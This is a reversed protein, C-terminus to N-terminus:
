IQGAQGKGAAEQRRQYGELIARLAGFALLALLIGRLPSAAAQAAKKLGQGVGQWFEVWNGRILSWYSEGPHAEAPGGPQGPYAPIYPEIRIPPDLAVLDYALVIQKLKGGVGHSENNYGGGECFKSAGLAECVALARRTTADRDDTGEYLAAAARLVAKYGAWERFDAMGSSEAKTMLWIYDEAAEDYSSYGAYKGGSLQM